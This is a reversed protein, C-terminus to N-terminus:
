IDYLVLKGISGYAERIGGGSYVSILRAPSDQPIVIVFQIGEGTQPETLLEKEGTERRTIQNITFDLYDMHETEIRKITSGETMKSLVTKIEIDDSVTETM